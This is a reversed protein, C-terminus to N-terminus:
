GVNGREARLRCAGHKRETRRGRRGGPARRAVLRALWSRIGAGLFPGVCPRGRACARALVDGSFLREEVLARRCVLVAIVRPRDFGKSRVGALVWAALIGFCPVSKPRKREDPCPSGVFCAGPDFPEPPRGWLARKESLKILRQIRVVSSSASCSC